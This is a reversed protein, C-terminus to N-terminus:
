CFCQKLLAKIEKSSRNKRHLANAVRGGIGAFVLAPGGTLAAVKTGLIRGVSSVFVNQNATVALKELGGATLAGDIETAVRQFEEINKFHEEGYIEILHTKIRILM